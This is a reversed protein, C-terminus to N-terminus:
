PSDDIFNPSVRQQPTNSTMSGDSSARAAHPGNAEKPLVVTLESADHAGIGPPFAIQEARLKAFARITLWNSPDVQDPQAFSAPTIVDAGLQAVSPLALAIQAARAV